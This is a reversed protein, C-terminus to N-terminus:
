TTTKMTNLTKSIIARKTSLKSSYQVDSILNRKLDYSAGALEGKYM